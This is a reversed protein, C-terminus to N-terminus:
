LLASPLAPSNSVVQRWRQQKQSLSLPKELWPKSVYTSIFGTDDNDDADEADDSEACALPSNFSM